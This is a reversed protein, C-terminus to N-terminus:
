VSAVQTEGSTPHAPDASGASQRNFLKNFHAKFGFPQGDLLNESIDELSRPLMELHHRSTRSEGPELPKRLEQVEPIWVWAILAGLLMLITFIMLMIALPKGGSTPSTVGAYHVVFQIIIAGMKGTMAAIGYCTGRYKTPFLEAPLMFTIVNPGMNLILLSFTYFVITEAHDGTEYVKQLSSGTILFLAALAIFMWRLATVRPIYNVACLFVVSGLISSISVTYLARVGDGHLAEYINEKPTTLDANWDYLTTTNTHLPAWVKALIRPNDLGLGYFCVDMLFWCLSTGALARRFGLGRHYVTSWDHWFGREPAQAPAGNGSGSGAGASHRREVMHTGSQQEAEGGIGGGIERRPHEISTRRPIHQIEQLPYSTTTAPNNPTFDDEGGARGSPRRTSGYQGPTSELNSRQPTQARTPMADRTTLDNQEPPPPLGSARPIDHSGATAAGNQGVRMGQLRNNRANQRAFVRGTAQVAAGLNEEVDILYRPTEPISLRLAIAFLAPIGGVGIVCRWVADIVPAAKEHDKWDDATLPPVQSKSIGRLALLGVGYAFFQGIPQMLFVAALMTARAKTPSWEAAILSSLPYEAGIGVGLLFRWWIIWPFPNMSKYGSSVQTLGLTAMIVIVLEVGYLRKRGYRDALHGFVVMGICSGILTVENIVLGKWNGAEKEWYVYALAPSIVNTAFIGYADTLFGSAAVFFVRWKFGNPEIVELLKSKTTLPDKM